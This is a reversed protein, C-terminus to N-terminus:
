SVEIGARLAVILIQERLEANRALPGGIREGTLADGARDGFLVLALDRDRQRSMWVLGDLQPCQQHLAQAWQGTQPYARAASATLELKPVKLRHLGDTTLDALHLDRTPMLLGHGRQAFTDLDVYKDEADIPVDHFVTEFIACALSQGGYLYPVTRGDTDVIPAFRTPKRPRGQADVGPNFSHPAFATDHIVHIPRGKPWVDILPDLAGAPARCSM